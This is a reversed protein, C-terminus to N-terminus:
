VAPLSHRNRGLSPFLNGGGETPLGRRRSWEGKGMGNRKDWGEGRRRVGAGFSQGGSGQGKGKSHPDLTNGWLGSFIKFFEVHKYISKTFKLALVSCWTRPKINNSTVQLNSRVIKFIYL